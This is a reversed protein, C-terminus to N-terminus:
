RSVHERIFLRAEQQDEHKGGDLYDEVVPTRTDWGVDAALYTVELEVHVCRGLEVAMYVLADLSFRSADASCTM